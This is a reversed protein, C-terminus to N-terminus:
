TIQMRTSKFPRQCILVMTNYGVTLFFVETATVVQISHTPVLCAAALHAEDEIAYNIHMSATLTMFVLLEHM